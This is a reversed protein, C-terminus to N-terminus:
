KKICFISISSTNSAVAVTNANGSAITAYMPSGFSNEDTWFNLVAGIDTAVNRIGHNIAALSEAVTPVRYNGSCTSLATSQTGVGGLFWLKGTISDEWENLRNTGEKELTTTVGNTGDKGDKGQIDISVWESSECSYFTDEDKVYALMAEKAESCGPLNAKSKVAVSIPSSEDKTEESAISTEQSEEDISPRETSETGCSILFVFLLYRM